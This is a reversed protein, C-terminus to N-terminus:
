QYFIINCTSYQLTDDCLGNDMSYTFHYSLIKAKANKIRKEYKGRFYIGGRERGTALHCKTDSPIKNIKKILVHLLIKEQATVM